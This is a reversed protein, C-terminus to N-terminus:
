HFIIRASFLIPHSVRCPLRSSWRRERKENMGREGRKEELKMGGTIMFNRWREREKEWDKEKLALVLYCPSHRGSLVEPNRVGRVTNNYKNPRSVYAQCIYNATLLSVKMLWCLYRSFSKVWNASLLLVGSGGKIHNLIGETNRLPADVNKCVPVAIIWCSHLSVM